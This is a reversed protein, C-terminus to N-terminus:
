VSMVQKVKRWVAWVYLRIYLPARELLKFKSEGVTRGEWHTPIESVRARAFYAYLFLEMSSETGRTQVRRCHSEITKRAYLKFANTSDHVPLRLVIHMTRNVITSFIGQIKPGGSKSGGKMYRSGCVVDYGKKIKEYMTNISNPDDCLDAMVFVVFPEKSAEVGRKLAQWFGSADGPKKEVFVINKAKTKKIYKKVVGGTKDANSSKDDIVYIAHAVHVADHLARLTKGISEEENRVPIIIALQSHIM